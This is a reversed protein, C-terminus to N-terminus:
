GRDGGKGERPWLRRVDSEMGRLIRELDALLVAPGDAATAYHMPQGYLGDWMAKFADDLTAPRRPDDARDGPCAAPADGQTAGAAPDPAAAEPEAQSGDIAALIPSRERFPFRAKFAKSAAGSHSDNM